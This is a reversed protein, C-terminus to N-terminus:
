IDFVLFYYIIYFFNLSINSYMECFKNAYNPPCQCKIGPAVEEGTGATAHVPEICVTSKVILAKLHLINCALTTM